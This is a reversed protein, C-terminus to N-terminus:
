GVAGHTFRLALHDMRHADMLFNELEMLGILEGRAHAFTQGM